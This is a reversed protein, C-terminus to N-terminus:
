NISGSSQRFELWRKSLQDWILQYEGFLEKIKAPKLDSPETAAIYYTLEDRLRYFQYQAEEMLVWRSRWAFFPELTNVVTVVAVLSFGLGAWFDLDQLGLIVTSAVLLALTALRVAASSRRFRRKRTRAYTNGREIRSLLDQALELPSLGPAPVASQIPPRENRM